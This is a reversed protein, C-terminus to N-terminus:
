TFRVQIPKKINTIDEDTLIRTRIAELLDSSKEKATKKFSKLIKFGEEFLQVLIDTIQTLLYHNQMATYDHSNAHEINYRINKQNNFGENEIKWRSRGAQIMKSANRKTVKINSIFTYKTNGKETEKIYEVVNVNHAQYHIGNVWSLDSNQTDKELNKLECFETMVSKIRGEKFRFLYTWKNRECLEFVNNCAYLSDALLCIPLRPFTKKLREALRNFANLECDQKPTDESENEIFESDLSLVINGVVLKAELVHHMYIIKEEGTKENKYKRRLCHKCHKQDFTFLGTGDVIIGWHKGNIRYSEFCRKKLLQKIMYTRIKSLENPNLASLFNNITDYHPLDELTELKFYKRMNEICEDKNFQKTMNRMSELNCANKMIVMFLILESGYTIYSSDRPDEVKKLRENMDKFFHKSIKTFEFFYNIRKENMRQEKRTAM